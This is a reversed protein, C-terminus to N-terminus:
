CATVALPLVRQHVPLGLLFPDNSDNFFPKM